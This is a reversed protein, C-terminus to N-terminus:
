SHESDTIDNNENAALEATQEPSAPLEDIAKQVADFNKKWRAIHTNMYQILKRPPTTKMQSIPINQWRKDVM